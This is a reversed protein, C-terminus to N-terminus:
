AACPTFSARYAEEAQELLTEIGWLAARATAAGVQSEESTYALNLTRIGALAQTMRATALNQNDLNRTFTHNSEAM